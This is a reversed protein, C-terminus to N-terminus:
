DKTEHRLLAQAAQFRVWADNGHDKAIDRLVDLAAKVYENKM